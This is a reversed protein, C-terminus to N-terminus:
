ETLKKLGVQVSLSKIDGVASVLNIRMRERFSITKTDDSNIKVGMRTTDTSLITVSDIVSWASNRYVELSINVNSTLTTGVPITATLFTVACNYPCLEELDQPGTVVSETCFYMINTALESTIEALKNNLTTGDETLIDDASPIDKEWDTNTTSVTNPENILIYACEDSVVYCHMGVLRREKPINNRDTLTGVSHRGGKIENAYATPYKDDSTFTTIAAAVNTGSNAGM